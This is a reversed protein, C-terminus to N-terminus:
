SRATPSYRQSSGKFVHQFGRLVGAGKIKQKDSLMRFSHYFQMILSRLHSLILFVGTSVHSIYIYRDYKYIDAEWFIIVQWALCFIHCDWKEVFHGVGGRHELCGFWGFSANCRIISHSAKCADNLDRPWMWLVAGTSIQWTFPYSNAVQSSAGLMSSSIQRNKKFMALKPPIMLFSSSM